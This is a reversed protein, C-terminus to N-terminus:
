RARETIETVLEASVEPDVGTWGVFAPRAQHLLMGIGTVIAHGRDQAARLLDTLLPKYVIDYVMARSPLHALDMTLSEQGRMGLVTTNVLLGTGACAEARAAWDVVRVRPFDRALVAAKDYSRNALIVEPCGAQLLGYVAARAAGGAGLLLVPTTALSFDPQSQKLNEIFGYADTNRGEILGERVIVTNVAGIARASEDLQHCFAMVSQKHPVTVNFGAYGESVLDIVRKQLDPPSVDLARYEGAIGYRDFWYNHILPSLSQAVPHGIVAARIM